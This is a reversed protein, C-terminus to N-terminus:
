TGVGKRDYELLNFKREKLREYYSQIGDHVYPLFVQLIEVQNMEILSLQVELWDQMLKWATRASQDDIWKLTEKRPRKVRQTLIANVKGVNAPIMIAIKRKTTPEVITFKISTLRGNEYDKLINPAGIKALIQEIRSITREVPVGSTYNKM